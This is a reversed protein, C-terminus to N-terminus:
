TAIRSRHDGGSGAGSGGADHGTSAASPAQAAAAPQGGSSADCGSAAAVVARTDSERVGDAYEDLRKVVDSSLTWLLKACKTAHKDAGRQGPM